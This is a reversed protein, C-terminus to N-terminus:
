SHIVVVVFYFVWKFGISSYTRGTPTVDPYPTYEAAGRKIILRPDKLRKLFYNTPIGFWLEFCGFRISPVPQGERILLSRM